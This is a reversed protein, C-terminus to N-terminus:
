HTRISGAHEILAEDLRDLDFDTANLLAFPSPEDGRMWAVFAPRHVGDQAHLFFHVLLWSLTYNVSPNGYFEAPEEIALVAEAIPEGRRQALRAARKFNRLATVGEVARRPSGGKHFSVSKGGVEAPHFTGEEDRWVYGFYSALGEVIWPPSTEHSLGMRRAALQHTLEHVMTDPLDGSGDADSHAAIADVGLTYHGKPRVASRAFAGDFLQNYDHFSFFMYIPTREGHPQLPWDDAWYSEFFDTFAEFLDIVERPRLRPDDTRVVFRESTAANFNKDRVLADAREFFAKRAQAPDLAAHPKDAQRQRELYRQDEREHDREAAEEDVFQAALPLTTFLM